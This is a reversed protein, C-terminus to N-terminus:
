LNGNPHQLICLLSTIYWHLLRRSAETPPLAKDHTIENRVYWVRWMTMLVVMRATESPHDLLSFLWEPGNNCITEVQPIPWDLAMAHSLERSLPCRCLVHFGDEREMGCLPCIDTLELHRSFKNAWTGLSNSVM